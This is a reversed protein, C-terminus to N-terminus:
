LTGLEQGVTVMNGNNNYKDLTYFYKLSTEELYYKYVMHLMWVFCFGSVDCVSLIFKRRYNFIEIKVMVVMMFILFVTLM